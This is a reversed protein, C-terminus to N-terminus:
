INNQFTAMSDSTAVFSPLTNWENITKPFFSNICSSTRIYPYTFSSQHHLRTDNNCTQYHLPIRLAILSNKAKYFLCLRAKTRRSELSPWQLQQLMSTVSSHRSYDHLVWHVARKQIKEINTIHVSQNINAIDHASMSQRICVCKGM